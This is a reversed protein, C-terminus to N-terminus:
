AKLRQRNTTYQNIVRKLPPCRLGPRLTSYGALFQRLVCQRFPVGKDTCVSIACSQWGAFENLDILNRSARHATAAQPGAVPLSAVAARAPKNLIPPARASTSPVADYM